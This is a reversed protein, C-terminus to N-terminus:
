EEKTHDTQTGCKPCTFILFVSQFACKENACAHGKIHTLSLTIDAAVTFGEMKLKSKLLDNEVNVAGSSDADLKVKKGSATEVDLGKMGPAPPIMRSM